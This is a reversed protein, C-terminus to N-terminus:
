DFPHDIRGFFHLKFAAYDEKCKFIIRGPIDVGYACITPSYQFKWRDKPINESCWDEIKRFLIYSDISETDKILADLRM